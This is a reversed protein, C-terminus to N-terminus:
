QVDLRGLFVAVAEVLSIDNNLVTSKIHKFVFLYACEEDLNMKISMHTKICAFTHTLVVHLVLVRAVNRADEKAIVM